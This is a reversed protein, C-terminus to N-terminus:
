ALLSKVFALGDAALQEETTYMRRWICTAAALEPLAQGFAEITTWGDYGLENRLVGFLEAMPAHGTGPTGRDNNSVHFHNMAAGHARLSAVLDCEEINAHFTDFLFGFGEVDVDKVLQAADAATNVFYTEFRNLPEFCLKVGVQRAHEAAVKLGEVAWDWEQQTRGRGVLKGVPVVFPGALTEVKMAACNDLAARLHDVGKQRAAAEPELLHWGDQLITCATRGLGVDDLKAAITQWPSASLDYMPLEAGDFGLKAVLDLLPLHEETMTGTWLLLNMGVKM